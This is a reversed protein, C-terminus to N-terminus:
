AAPQVGWVEGVPLEVRHLLYPHGFAIGNRGKFHYEFEDRRGLAAESMDSYTNLAYPDRETYIIGGLETADPQEFIIYFAREGAMEPAEIIDRIGWNVLVNEVTTAKADGILKSEFLQLAALLGEPPVVVGVPRLRRLTKNPGRMGRITARVAAFSEQNLNGQHLNTYKAGAPELLNIPHQNSFFVVDDYAKLTKGEGLLEFLKREPWYAASAGQDAAWKSAVDLLPMKQGAVLMHGDRVQDNTLILGNGSRENDIYTAAAALSEFTRQGGLREPQIGLSELLWIFMERPGTSPVTSMIRDWVLDKATEEWANSVTPHMVTELDKITEIM